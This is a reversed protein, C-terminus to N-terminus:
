PEASEPTSQVVRGALRALLGAVGRQRVVAASTTHRALVLPAPSDDFLHCFCEAYGPM